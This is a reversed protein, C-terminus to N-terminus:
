RPATEIADRGAAADPDRMLEAVVRVLAGRDPPRAAVARCGADFAAQRDDAASLAVLPVRAMSPDARLHRVAALDDSGALRPNMVVVAPRVQGVLEFLRRADAALLVQTGLETSLAAAVLERIAKDQDGVVIVRNWITGREIEAGVIRLGEQRDGRRRLDVSGAL